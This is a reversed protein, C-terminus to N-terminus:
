ETTTRQTGGLLAIEGLVEGSVLDGVMGSFEERIRDREGERVRQIIRQKAAMVANRGFDSFEVPIELLDGVQFDPDDWRAEELSTERAPDEVDINKTDVQCHTFGMDWAAHLLQEAKGQYYAIAFIPDDLAVDLGFDRYLKCREEVVRSPMMLLAPVFKISDAYDGWIELMDRVWPVPDGEDGICTLGKTRPKKSRPALELFEFFREENNM